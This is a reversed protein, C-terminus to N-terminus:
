YNTCSKQNCHVARVSYVNHMTFQMNVPCARLVPHSGTEFMSIVIHFSSIRVCTGIVISSFANLSLLKCFIVYRVNRPVIACSFSFHKAPRCCRSVSSISPLEICSTARPM